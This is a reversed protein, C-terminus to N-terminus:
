RARLPYIGARRASPATHVKVATLWDRIGFFLAFDQRFFLNIVATIELRSGGASGGGPRWAAGERPPCPAPPPSDRAAPRPGLAPTPTAQPGTLDCSWPRAAPPPQHQHARPRHRAASPARVMTLSHPPTRPQHNHPSRPPPAYWPSHPAPPTCRRDAMAQPPPPPPRPLATGGRGRRGEM